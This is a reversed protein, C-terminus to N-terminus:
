GRSYVEEYVKLTERATKAFSFDQARRLGKERLKKHLAPDALVRYVADAIEDPSQPNVTLAADGAIEPCSSVNSTVVPTGCSFAEVIPFGFGEYFSPFVFVRAQHYFHRLEQNSLFGTFCVEDYIGLEKSLGLLDENLWGKSGIVVLQGPFFKKKLISFATLLNRLNKRPEITGVFLIFPKDIGKQRVTRQALEEEQDDLLYFDKSHVGQYILATKNADVKFFRNLDNLTSQSCCIIKSAKEVIHQFQRQTEEITEVTHGQPFTKFILDHVTVVIKAGNLHGLAEPSPCHYVDMKGVTKEVGRYFRDIKLHFNQAPVKPLRRRPAFFRKPAYLLYQNQSDIESLSQLLQSTYRGIGTFDKNLFSRCNIGIRM